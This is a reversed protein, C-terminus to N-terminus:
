QLRRMEEESTRRTQEYLSADGALRQGGDRQVPRLDMGFQAQTEIPAIWNLPIRLMIGKDFSGEGFDQASVNTKTFFAGIEVGTSFRRTVEVTLGRDHALYQGARVVFNLDYWPSAYYLSVHGTFARYSQLGFLRDFNRQQVEFADVGLAWRQGEPRWLVEGGAGGFMSELYGARVAAFVTPAIRFHYEADLFAVGNKGKTSYQLFDTRVHPLVSSPLRNTSFTDFLSAEVQGNISLGPLIDISGGAGALFQVGFPNQPDFLQQRFQPFISWSFSLYNKATAAALVPNEMAAPASQVDTAFNFDGTQGADRELPARLVSFERVPRGGSVAIMRFKEIEVPADETLVRTLRGVANAESFYHGNNYYVIVETATLTLAMVSIQQKALHARINAIALADSTATRGDAHILTTAPVMTALTDRNMDRDINASVRVLAPVVVVPCQSRKGHLAVTVRSIGTDYRGLVLAVGRCLAVPNGETFDMSIVDGRLQIDDLGKLKWLEDVLQGTSAFARPRLARGAQMGRSEMLTELAIQQEEPSRIHVELPPPGIRQPYADHVPDLEFSLNGGVARGYLWSLGIALTQTLQYNAGLSIQTHPRFTGKATEEVYSDSSYEGILTLGELPTAWAVGGFLGVKQGHFLVSFNTGGPIGTSAASPRGGFSPAIEALPNKFLATAGMRGWGMGISADVDGFKKSAVIYEGGYIGTGVIDNIGVALSPLATTEQMLRMKIAFSRDYYVPFQPDFHELGSYRLSAELWPFVQFSMNYRQIKQTFFAGIALAGDPAMRASPMDIFGPSGYNNRLSLSYDPIAPAEQGYVAPSMVAFVASCTLLVRLRSRVPAIGRFPTSRKTGRV